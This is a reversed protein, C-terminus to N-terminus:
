LVFLPTMLQQQQPVIINMQLFAEIALVDGDTAIRVLADKGAPSM